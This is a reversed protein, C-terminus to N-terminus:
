SRYGKHTVPDTVSPVLPSYGWALAEPITRQYSQNQKNPNNGEHENLQEGMFVMCASIGGDLNYAETCGEAIFLEALEEMTAGASYPVKEGNIWTIAQRGDVTIAVFHGPEVMGLACRPNEKRVYSTKVSPPVQGNHILIPDYMFGYCNLVGDDLLEKATISKKEYIRLSLDPYFALNDSAKGEHYVWGNRIMIGKKEKQQHILNDGMLLLVADNRRAVEWPYAKPLGGNNTDNSFGSRFDYPDLMRIHAVFYTMPKEPEFYRDILISLTDSRYEWHGQEWDQVVVEAPDDEARFYEAWPHPTPTPEPEPTPEATPEPTPTPTPEVTAEPLAASRDPVAPGLLKPLLLYLASALLLGLLVPLLCVARKAKRRRSGRRLLLLLTILLGVAACVASPLWMLMATRDDRGSDEAVATPEPTAPVPTPTPAETPTPTPEPTPTPAASANLNELIDNQAADAGVATEILRYGCDEAAQLRLVRRSPYYAELAAAAVAEGTKGDYTVLPLDEPRTLSAGDSAIVYVKDPRYGTQIKELALLLAEGTTRHMGNAQMPDSDYTVIVKPRVRELVRQVVEFVPGNASWESKGSVMSYDTGGRGVFGGFEPQVRLGLAYLAALSENRAAAHSETMFMVRVDVGRDLLTPLLGGFVTFEEAPQAAILLVDAAEGGAQWQQVTEPLAGAGYVEAESLAILPTALRTRKMRDTEVEPLVGDLPFLEVSACGDSLAVVRNFLGDAIRERSLEAGVGDRQVLTYGEATFSHWGLSLVAAKEAAEPWSVTVTEGLACTVRSNANGDSLRWAADGASEPLAFVCPLAEAVPGEQEALAATPLLLVALLLSAARLMRRIRRDKM